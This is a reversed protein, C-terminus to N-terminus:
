LINWGASSFFCRVSSRTSSVHVTWCIWPHDPMRSWRCGVGSLYANGICSPLGLFTCSIYLFEQTTLSFQEGTHTHWTVKRNIRMRANPPSLKFNVGSYNKFNTTDYLLPPCPLNSVPILSALVSNISFSHFLINKCETWRQLQILRTIMTQSFGNWRWYMELTHCSYSIHWKEVCALNEVVLNIFWKSPKYISFSRQAVM